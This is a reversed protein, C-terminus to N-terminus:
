SKGKELESIPVDVGEFRLEERYGIFTGDDTYVPWKKRSVLRFRRETKLKKVANAVHAPSM